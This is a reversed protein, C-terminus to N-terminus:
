VGRVGYAVHGSAIVNKGHWGRLLLSHSLLTFARATRRLTHITIRKCSPMVDVRHLPKSSTCPQIVGSVWRRLGRFCCGRLINRHTPHFCALGASFKVGNSADRLVAGPSPPTLRYVPRALTMFNLQFGKRTKRQKM